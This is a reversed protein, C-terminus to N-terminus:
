LSALTRSRCGPDGVNGLLQIGCTRTKAHMRRHRGALTPYTLEAREKGRRARPPPRATMKLSVSEVLRVNLVLNSKSWEDNSSM